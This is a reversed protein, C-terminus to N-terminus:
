RRVGVVTGIGLCVEVANTSGAAEAADTDGDGENGALAVHHNHVLDFVVETDLHLAKIVVIPVFDFRFDLCHQLTDSGLRIVTTVRSFDIHLDTYPRIVSWPCNYSSYSPSCIYQIIPIGSM